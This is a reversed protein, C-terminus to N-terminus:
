PFSCLLLYLFLFLFFMPVRSCLLVSHFSCLCLFTLCYRIFPLHFFNHICSFDHLYFTVIFLHRFSCTLSHQLLTLFLYLVLFPAFAPVFLGRLRHLMPVSLHVFVLIFLSPFVIVFVLINLPVLVYWFM